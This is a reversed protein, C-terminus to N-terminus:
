SRKPARDGPPHLDRDAPADTLSAILSCFTVPCITTRGFRLGHHDFDLTDHRQVM